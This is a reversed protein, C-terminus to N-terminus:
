LADAPSRWYAPTGSFEKGPLAKVIFLKVHRDTWPIQNNRRKPEVIGLRYACGRWALGINFSSVSEPLLLVDAVKRVLLPRNRNRSLKQVVPLWRTGAFFQRLFTWDRRTLPENTRVIKPKGSVEELLRPKAKTKIVRFM